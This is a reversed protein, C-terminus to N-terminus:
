LSVAIIKGMATYNHCDKIRALKTIEMLCINVGKKKKKSGFLRSNIYCNVMFDQERWLHCHIHFSRGFSPLAMRHANVPRHKLGRYFQEIFGHEKGQAEAHSSGSHLQKTFPYM